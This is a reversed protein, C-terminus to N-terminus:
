RRRTSAPWGTAPRVQTSSNLNLSIRAGTPGRQKPVCHQWDRQCRGRMIIVDGGAPTFAVSPGGANPRILFRRAAGLSVVPVIATEPENAPRDAHWSTSDHHDRYWNMWLNDYPVDCYESLADTLTVLFSPALTLHHIENTMRPELVSRDYMWRSRQEWGQLASLERMLSADGDVLGHVHTIWSHDDLRHSTATAFAAADLSPPQDHRDGDFLDLQETSSM